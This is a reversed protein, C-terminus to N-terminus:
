VTPTQKCQFAQFPVLCTETKIHYRFLKINTFFYLFSLPVYKKCLSVYHCLSSLELLLNLHACLIIIHPDPTGSYKVQIAWSHANPTLRHNQHWRVAANRPLKLNAADLHQFSRGGGIWPHFICHISYFTPSKLYTMLNIIKQWCNEVFQM